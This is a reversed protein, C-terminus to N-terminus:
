RDNMVSNATDAGSTQTLFAVPTRNFTQRGRHGFTQTLLVIPILDIAQRLRAGSSAKARRAEDTREISM